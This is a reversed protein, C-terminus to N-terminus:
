KTLWASFFNILFPIVIMGLLIGVVASAGKLWTLTGKLEQVADTIRDEGRERAEKETTLSRILEGIQDDHRGLSEEFRRYWQEHSTLDSRMQELEARLKAVAETLAPLSSPQYKQMVEVLEIPFDDLQEPQPFDGFETDELEYFTAAIVKRGPVLRFRTSSFNFLGVMLPGKYKPDICFGGIILIGAHSMKRKPSLLAIMNPPLDLHEQTFAFVMEGPEVVLEGKERESLRDANIPGGLSAKLIHPGLHFDYKVGEASLRDGHKIFTETDVARRLAEGTVLRAM